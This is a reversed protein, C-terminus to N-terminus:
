ENRLLATFCSFIMAVINPFIKYHRLRSCLVYSNNSVAITSHNGNVHYEKKNQKHANRKVIKKELKPIKKYICKLLM